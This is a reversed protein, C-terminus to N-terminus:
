GPAEAYEDPAIRLLVEPSQPTDVFRRSVTGAARKAVGLCGLRSAAVALNSWLTTGPLPHMCVVGDTAIGPGGIVEGNEDYAVVSFVYRENPTLGTITVREVSGDAPLKVGAGPLDVNHLGPALGSTHVKALVAFTAPEPHERGRIASRLSNQLEPPTLTVSVDTRTLVLPARPVLSRKAMKEGKARTASAHLEREIREGEVLSEAAEELLAERAERKPRSAAMQTLLVARRWPNRGAEEILREETAAPAHPVTGARELASTERKLDWASKVGYITSELTRRENAATLEAVLATAGSREGEMGAAIALRHYAALLDAHLSALAQETESTSTREFAVASVAADGGDDDAASLWVCEATVNRVAEDESGVALDVHARRSTEIARTAEEAAHAAAVVDGRRELALCLRLSITARLAGDDFGVLEFGAQCGALIEAAFIEDSRKATTERATDKFWDKVGNWLMLSADTVIDACSAAADNPLSRIIMALKVRPDKRAKEDEADEEAEREDAPAEPTEPEPEPFEEGGEMVRVGKLLAAAHALALADAGYGGDEGTAGLEVLRLAALDHLLKFTELSEYCFARRMM